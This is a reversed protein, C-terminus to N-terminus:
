KVFLQVAKEYNGLHYYLTALNNISEVIDPHEYGLVKQRIKYAQTALSISKNYDSMDYYL